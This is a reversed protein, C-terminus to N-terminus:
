VERCYEKLEKEIIKIDEDAEYKKYLAVNKISIDPNFGQRKRVHHKEDIDLFNLIRKLTEDYNLVAEEFTIRLVREPDDTHYKQHERLKRYWTIYTNLDHTPIWSEKWGYKNAVYLDRPDRDVVIVKIDDFYNLYRGINAPPVLQDAVLYEYKFEEDISNFLERTYNKTKEHFDERPYSFYMTKKPTQAVIETDKPNNFLKRFRPYLKYAFFTYVPNAEISHQEWYGQWSLDILSDIYKYSIEKFKGHFFGEYRKALANGSHYDVIDKFRRIAIDSNMRHHNDVLACELTSVGDYDQLFRFEYEGLSNCNDFEKLLDTIVSSGTGGYSACTVMKHYRKESM